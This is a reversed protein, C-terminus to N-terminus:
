GGLVNDLGAIGTAARAQPQALTTLPKNPKDNSM